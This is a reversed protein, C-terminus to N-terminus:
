LVATVGGMAGVAAEAALLAVMVLDEAKAELGEVGVGVAERVVGGGAEEKVAVVVAIVEMEVGTQEAVWGAGETGEVLGGEM